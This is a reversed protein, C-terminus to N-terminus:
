PDILVLGGSPELIINEPCLCVKGPQRGELPDFEIRLEPFEDGRFYTRVHRKKASAIAKSAQSLAELLADLVQQREKKNKKARYLTVLDTGRVDELFLNSGELGYINIVRLRGESGRLLSHVDELLDMDKVAETPSEYVKRIHSKQSVRDVYRLVLNGLVSKSLTFVQWSENSLNDYPVGQWVNPDTLSFVCRDGFNSNASSSVSAFFLFIFFGGRLV